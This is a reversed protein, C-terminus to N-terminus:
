SRELGFDTGPPSQNVGLCSFSSRKGTILIPSDRRTRRQDNSDVFDIHDGISFSRPSLEWRLSSSGSDLRSSRSLKEETREEM